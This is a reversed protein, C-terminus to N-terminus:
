GGRTDPRSSSMAEVADYLRNVRVRTPVIVLERALFRARPQTAPHARARQIVAHAPHGLSMATRGSRGPAVPGPRRAVSRPRCPATVTSGRTSRTSSGRQCHYTATRTRARQHCSSRRTSPRTRRHDGAPQGDDASSKIASV